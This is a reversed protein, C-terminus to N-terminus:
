CHDGCRSGSWHHQIRSQVGVSVHKQRSERCNVGRPSLEDERSVEAYRVEKGALGGLLQCAGIVCPHEIRTTVINTGPAHNIIANAIRFCAQSGSLAPMITGSKAGVFLKADEMGKEFVEDAHDSAPNGRHHESPLATEKAVAEIVSKLRVSGGSAEFHIRKGSYPDWDIYLFKGRLEEVLEPALLKRDM